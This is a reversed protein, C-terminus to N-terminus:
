ASRERIPIGEKQCRVVLETEFMGREFVCKDLIHEVDDKRLAKIGRTDTGEYGILWRVLFSYGRTLLRRLPPRDDKSEPLCKSSQVVPTEELLQLSENIFEKDWFDVHVIFNWNHPSKVLGTKKALGVNAPGINHVTLQDYTKKLEDLIEPTRDTSGNEVVIIEYSIDKKDLFETLGKLQPRLIQEENYVPMVFGVTGNPGM